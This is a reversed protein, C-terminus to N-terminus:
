QGGSTLREMVSPIYGVSLQSLREIDNSWARNELDAETDANAPKLEVDADPIVLYSRCSKQSDRHHELVSASRVFSSERTHTIDINHFIDVIFTSLMCIQSIKLGSIVRLTM